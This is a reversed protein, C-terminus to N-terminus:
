SGRQAVPATWTARMMPVQLPVRAWAGLKQWGPRRSRQLDLAMQVNGVWIVALTATALGPAWRAGTLLGAASALEPVATAYVWPTPDGLQRPILPEFVEPRVLHVLGSAGLAGAVLATGVPLRMRAPYGTAGGSASRRAVM